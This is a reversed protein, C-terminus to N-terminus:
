APRADGRARRRTPRRTVLPIVMAALLMGAIIPLAGTFSGTRDKVAAVFVPGVVGGVGWALLIWGYNVGMHRTGFYDAVFSPMTGFGGGYCLLVVAFLAAVVPLSEVRGVVLFIAVQAGYLRALFWLRASTRVASDAVGARVQHTTDM